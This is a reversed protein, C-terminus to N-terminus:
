LIAQEAPAYKIFGLANIINVQALGSANPLAGLLAGGAAETGIRALARSAKEGLYADTLYGSLAEVATDDGAHQLLQIVFGKNDKDDLAGLAAIAGQIFTARQADKGSSLVHYSYSNAAYEIGANDGQGPPTLQSLLETMDPATFRELQGMADHLRQPTESPQLALMDAIKTTTTRNDGQQAYVPAQLTTLAILAVITRIM